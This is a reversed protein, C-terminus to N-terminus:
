PLLGRRRADEQFMAHVRLHEEHRDDGCRCGPRRLLTLGAGLPLAEASSRVTDITLHGACRAYPDPPLQRELCTCGPRKVMTFGPGGLENLVMVPHGACKSRFHNLAECRRKMETVRQARSLAYSEHGGLQAGCRLCILADEDVKFDWACFAPLEGSDPIGIAHLGDSMKQFLEASLETKTARLGVLGAIGAIVRGFFGRRDM